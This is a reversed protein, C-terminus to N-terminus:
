YDPPPPFDEPPDAEEPPSFPLSGFNIISFNRMVPTLTRATACSPMFNSLVKGGNEKVKNILGCCGLIEDDPHAFIAAVLGM